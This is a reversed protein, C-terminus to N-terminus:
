QILNNDKAAVNFYARGEVGSYLKRVTVSWHGFPENVAGPFTLRADGTVPM